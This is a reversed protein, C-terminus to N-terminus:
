FSDRIIARCEEKTIKYPKLTSDSVWAFPGGMLTLHILHNSLKADKNFM